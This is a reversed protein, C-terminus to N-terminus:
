AERWVCSPMENENGTVLRHPSSVCRTELAQATCTEIAALKEEIEGMGGIDTGEPTGNQSGDTREVPTMFTAQRVELQLIGDSPANTVDGVEETIEAPIFDERGWIRRGCSQSVCCGGNTRLLTSRTQWDLGSERYGSVELEVLLM